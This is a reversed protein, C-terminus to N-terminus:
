NVSKWIAIERTKRMKGSKDVQNKVQDNKMDDSNPPTAGGGGWVCVRTAVDRAM